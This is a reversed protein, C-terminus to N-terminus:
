CIPLDSPPAELSQLEGVGDEVLFAMALGWTIHVDLHCHMLWVGPNDAVFRIVAWGNVPVGVTNRMPPDDMNFSATDAAADFNGFGEALIYFDYGHLHIPHNEAAFVNTGQLVLQVAAGYKLSYVRTGPVPQWLARSVNPATYDFRVPPNAPFDATFVGAPTAGGAAYAYHAQLISTTSPLVFSVNNISAAFRTNNPGGCTQGSSCNFLGVGVTFFLSEDVRAPLDAARLGRLSTTFATATATDNYAPLTPMAPSSSNSAGTGYDFIATTTTNDFPVGQASAYARAALYYRSPPQDFTVLVDTTQGPAVLIVPTAYPKTYSADAGVVTMTHGALSVFLETNLAANIFRLLNTEGSTVSFTTTGNSSCKYLDGPQGNVTLADSINPAAGTRTATRVVDIPNMNWWEGLIITIERAPTDGANFPYPVGARPRIILAGHVTARLWSSHAHWWLTGEQGAVTFRYTYSTGPRIPCQTVFEPGDAWATRMQRVGHWHVTVNYSGRNRVRVILADGEAVEVTPGPFQGNVTMIRQQQTGCLRTVTAEKVVFEHYQEKAIALQSCLLLTLLTAFLLPSYSSWGRSSSSSSSSMGLSAHMGASRSTALSPRDLQGVRALGAKSISVHLALLLGLLASAPRGARKIPAPAASNM